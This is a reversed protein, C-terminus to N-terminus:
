DVPAPSGDAYRRTGYGLVFLAENVQGGAFHLRHGLGQYRPAARMADAITTEGRRGDVVDILFRATDYGAYALRDPAAGSLRLYAEQFRAADPSLPDVFFVDTFLVQHRAARARSAQLGAWSENGLPRPVVGMEELGRMAGAAHESGQDGITPLYLADLGALMEPQLVDPLRFWDRESALRFDLPVDAERARAEDTFADAMARGVGEPEAITGLNQLGLEDTAYRAMVRAREAFPPNAQFVYRRGAAVAEETALPALLPVQAREAAVAAAEAEYSYLPGIVVDAGADIVAQTADRAGAADGGTNRFVIRIQRAPRSGNHQDVALRVGNLMAQALPRDDLGVPLVLGLVHPEPADPIALARQRLARAEDAYRSQPYTSLLSAFTSVARERDGAAYYAKGAMFYAATTRANYGYDTSAALFRRAADDYNGARYDALGAEFQGEAAAITSATMPQAWASPAAPALLLVALLALLPRLMPM